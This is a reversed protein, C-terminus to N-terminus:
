TFIGVSFLKFKRLKVKLPITMHTVDCPQCYCQFVIKNEGTDKSYARTFIRVKAYAGKPIPEECCYCKYLQDAAIIMYDTANKEFIYKEDIDGYYVPLGDDVMIKM